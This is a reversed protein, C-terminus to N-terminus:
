TPSHCILRTALPIFTANPTTAIAKRSKYTASLVVKITAQYDCVLPSCLRENTTTSFHVQFYQSHTVLIGFYMLTRTKPALIPTRAPNRCPLGAKKGSANILTLESCRCDIEVTSLSGKAKSEYNWNPYLYLIINCLNINQTILCIWVILQEWCISHLMLVCQDTPWGLSPHSCDCVTELIDIGAQTKM